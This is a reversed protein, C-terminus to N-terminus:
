GKRWLAGLVNSITVFALAVASFVVYRPDRSRVFSAAALIVRAPPLAALLAAGALVLTTPGFHEWGSAWDPKMSPFSQVAVAWVFASGLALIVLGTGIRLWLSLLKELALDSASGGSTPPQGQTPSDRSGTM